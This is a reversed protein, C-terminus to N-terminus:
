KVIIKDVPIDWKNVKLKKIIQHKFCLGIIPKKGKVNKLFRDFYGKGRGKRNGDGDFLVGPIFFMDIMSKSFKRVKKPELIDYTSNILENFDNLKSPIISCKKNNCVPVIVTKEKIFLKKIIEKTNVEDKKSIFIFINNKDGCEKLVDEEFIQSKM